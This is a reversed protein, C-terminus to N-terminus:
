RLTVVSPLSPVPGPYNDFSRKLLERALRVSSLVDRENYRLLHELSAEDGQEAYRRWLWVAMVGDGDEEARRTIGLVKEIEKLGGSLGYVRAEHLLDIHPPLCMLGFHRALVPLDFRIGNFTVLVEIRRWAELFEHLNRDRVYHAMNGGQWLGIVTLEDRVGLGTTEVDLFALGAEFEPWVRLRFGPPLRKLFYDAVRGSLAARLEPVQAALNATKRPSLARGVHPLRDWSLCGARWMKREAAPSIGRFCCLSRTLM